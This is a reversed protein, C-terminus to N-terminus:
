FEKVLIMLDEQSLQVCGEKGCVQISKPAPKVVDGLLLLQPQFNAPALVNVGLIGILFLGIRIM